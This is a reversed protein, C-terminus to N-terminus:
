LRGVIQGPAPSVKLLWWHLLLYMVKGNTLTWLTPFLVISPIWIYFMHKSFFCGSGSRKNVLVVILCWCFIALKHKSILFYYMGVPILKWLACILVSCKCFPLDPFLFSFVGPALFMGFVLLYHHFMFGHPMTMTYYLISIPCDVSYVKWSALSFSHLLLRSRMRKRKGRWGCPFASLWVTRLCLVTAFSTFVFTFHASVTIWSLTHTKFYQSNWSWQFHLMSDNYCGISVFTVFAITFVTPISIWHWAASFHFQTIVISCSTLKLYRGPNLPIQVSCQHNSEM